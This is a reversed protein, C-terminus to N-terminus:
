RPKTQKLGEATVTNITLGTGDWISKSTGTLRNEVDRPWELTPTLQSTPSNLNMVAGFHSFWVIPRETIKNPFIFYGNGLGNKVARLNSEKVFFRNDKKLNRGILKIAEDASIQKITTKNGSVKKFIKSFGKSSATVLLKDPINTFSRYVDINNQSSDLLEIVTAQLEPNEFFCVGLNCTDAYHKKGEILLYIFKPNSPIDAHKDVVLENGNIEFLVNPKLTFIQTYFDKDFVQKISIQDAHLELVYGKFNPGDEDDNILQRYTIASCESDKCSNLWTEAISYNTHMLLLLFGTTIRALKMQNEKKVM